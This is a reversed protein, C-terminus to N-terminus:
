LVVRELQNNPGQLSCHNATSNVEAITISTDRVTNGQRRAVSLDLSNQTKNRMDPITIDKQLFLPLLTSTNKVIQELDSKFM